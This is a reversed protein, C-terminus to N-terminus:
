IIIGSLRLVVMVGIVIGLVYWRWNELKRVRGNQQKVLVKIEGVDNRTDEVAQILKGWAVPDILCEREPTPCKETM